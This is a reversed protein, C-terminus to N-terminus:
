ESLEVHCLSCATYRAGRKGNEWRNYEVPYHGQVRCIGSQLIQQAENYAVEAQKVKEVEEDTLEADSGYERDTLYYVPYMEDADVKVRNM